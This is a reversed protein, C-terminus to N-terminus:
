AYRGRINISVGEGEVSWTVPENSGVYGLATAGEDVRHKLNGYNIEPPTVNVSSDSDRRNNGVGDM